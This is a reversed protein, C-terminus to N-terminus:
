SSRSKLSVALSAAHAYFAETPDMGRRVFREQLLTLHERLEDDLQENLRSRRFTGRVRSLLVRLM